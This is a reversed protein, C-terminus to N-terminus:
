THDKTQTNQSPHRRRCPGGALELAVLVILLVLEGRMCRCMPRPWIMALGVGKGRGGSMAGRVDVFMSIPDTVLGTGVIQVVVEVVRKGM